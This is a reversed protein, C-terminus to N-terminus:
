EAPQLGGVGGDQSTGTLAEEDLTVEGDYSEGIRKYPKGSWTWAFFRGIEVGVAYLAPVMFLSILIAFAVASGLSIVMPKLFQAQVSREAILPLVGVFTTVSTLLVPRFRSVGADVLSQVAGYGEERRRNVFDILVLNDNIVVGAAAAIGFFSFMAMPEGFGLHGFVAGAYAFPIATMILAPQAYSRFAIALLCYMVGLAVITFLFVEAFFRAEDEAGGVSGRTIAPYRDNFSPWFNAEMDEMIQGRVDATLEARVTVSRLRDRRVIRNIGPGFEFDAVQSMPIQRGDPTRLRLNSLSDLSERDEEPLRVMVRVDEGDRPLRQVEIGFYAQRVQNSVQALTIGLAEAGPKMKIRVEEAASSLNDRVDYTTDYTSLQQKVEEAATRLLDLDPHNLAFQIGNSNENFTFAFSIDDADPIPGVLDRLEQAVDKSSITEPREEPPTIGIWAQIERETAVVSAGEVISGVLDPYLEQSQASLTDVGAQLQDRVESTRSFPTGEALEINVQILDAEIEPMFRFQVFGMGVLQTAFGFMVIFLAITAYRFRLAAELVPKYLNNAFWLLSDAIRRQFKLFGGMPGDFRQKKLHALHAPLILMSEIISFTLAAVVVFTIQQTFARTPGTLFAWPLFAIITTLVGFIVPKLVLQTGMVDADIGERRGSEVERHINEGVIIADDVVVGIVLLVAFLSLINFSVGFFPLLMIGGAFATIIGVTVWLAVTPRLFLILVTLVMLAGLGASSAITNMRAKFAVSDDWLIDIQAAEPIINNAPDNAREIYDKLADTYEIIQMKNPSPLFVFATPNNDYTARLDADVFGDIVTAVDRVRITGQDTTQRVIIEGFQDATDALSRTALGVTGTQTRVTGGSLNLSTGAVANAVEDFSLQYRRLTEEAIEIAVEEDLVGQVVALEGGSIQAIDDRVKDAVRKLTRDDMDGHVAMGFYWNRGEWRVVQPRFSDRPLNNIQDVRLKVEDLFELMDIDDRGKINVTGGGEYAISTIRDLGDIDAVVEEVRSIIQEEADQPSAGPWNVVVSAGNVNVTPFMEREMSFFAVAGGVFAIIMLLNAAVSNRAFWSVIGNM